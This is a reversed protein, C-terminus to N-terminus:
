SVIKTLADHAENESLQATATNVIGYCKELKQFHSFTFEVLVGYLLM